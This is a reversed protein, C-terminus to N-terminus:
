TNRDTRRWASNSRSPASTCQLTGSEITGAVKPAADLHRRELAGLERALLMGAPAWLPWWDAQAALAHRDAAELWRRGVHLMSIM